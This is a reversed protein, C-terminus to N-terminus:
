KGFYGREAMAKMQDAIDIVTDLESITGSNRMHETVETANAGKGGNAKSVAEFADMIKREYSTV